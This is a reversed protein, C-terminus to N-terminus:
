RDFGDKEACARFLLERNAVKRYDMEKGKRMAEGEARESRRMERGIKEAARKKRHRMAKWVASSLRANGAIIQREM